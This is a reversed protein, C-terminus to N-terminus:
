DGYQNTIMVFYCAFLLTITLSVRNISIIEWTLGGVLVQSDPHILTHGAVEALGCPSRGQVLILQTVLEPPM